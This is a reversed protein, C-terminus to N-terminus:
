RNAQLQYKGSEQDIPMKKWINSTQKHKKMRHIAKQAKKENKM